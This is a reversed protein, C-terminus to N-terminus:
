FTPFRTLSLGLPVEVLTSQQMRQACTTNLKNGKPESPAVRKYTGSKIFLQLLVMRTTKKRRIKSRSKYAAHCWCLLFRNRKNKKEWATLFHPLLFCLASEQWSLTKTIVNVFGRWIRFPILNFNRFWASRLETTVCVSGRSAPPVGPFLERKKKVTVSKRTTENDRTWHAEHANNMHLHEIM